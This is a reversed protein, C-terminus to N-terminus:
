RRRKKFFWYAAGLALVGLGIEGASMSGLGNLSPLPFNYPSVYAGFSTFPSQTNHGVYM